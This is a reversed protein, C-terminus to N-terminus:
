GAFRKRKEHWNLLRLLTGEEIAKASDVPLELEKSVRKAFEVNGHPYLQYKFILTFGGLKRVEELYSKPAMRMIFLPILALDHCIGLKDKLEDREIYELKNKIETGYILGDKEFVRDLNRGTRTSIRGQYQRVDRAKPMFGITPLAADFM